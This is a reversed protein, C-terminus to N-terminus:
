SKPIEKPDPSSFFPCEPTKEIHFLLGAYEMLVATALNHLIYPQLRRGGPLRDWFYTSVISVKSDFELGHGSVIFDGKEKGSDPDGYPVSTVFILPKSLTHEKVLSEVAGDLDYGSNPLRYRKRNLPFRRSNMDFYFAQQIDNAVGLANRTEIRNLSGIQAISFSDSQHLYGM